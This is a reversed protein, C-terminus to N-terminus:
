MCFSIKSCGTATAAVSSLAAVRARRAAARRRRRRARRARSRSRASGRRRCSSGRRGPRASSAPSGRRCGRCRRSRSRIGSGRCRHRVRARQDHRDRLRALGGVREGRQLVRSRRPWRANARSRCRAPTPAPARLRRQPEQGAGARLDADGRGLREGRLEGRQESSAASARALQAAPKGFSRSAAAGAPAARLQRRREGAHQADLRLHRGPRRLERAALVREEEAAAHVVRDGHFARQLQLLDGVDM